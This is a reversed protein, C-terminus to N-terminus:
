VNDGWDEFHSWSWGCREEHEAEWEDELLAFIAEFSMIM